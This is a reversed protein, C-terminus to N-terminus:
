RVLFDTRVPKHDSAGDASEVKYRRPEASPCDLVSGTGSQVLMWDIRLRIFGVASFTTADDGLSCDFLTKDRGHEANLRKLDTRLEPGEGVTVTNLDGAFITPTGPTVLRDKVFDMQKRRVNKNSKNETHLTVLDIARSAGTATPVSISAGLANRMGCRKQAGDLSWDHGGEPTLMPIAISRVNTLPFRSVIANGSAGRRDDRLELFEVGTYFSYGLARAIERAVVVGRASKGYLDTENLLWVDANLRKMQRIAKDLQKGREVNWEVVRLSGAPARPAIEGAPVAWEAKELPARFTGGEAYASAPHFFGQANPGIRPLPQGELPAMGAIDGPNDGVREVVPNCEPAANRETGTADFGDTGTPDSAGCAALGFGALLVPFRRM